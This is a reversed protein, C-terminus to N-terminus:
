ILENMKYDLHEMNHIKCKSPIDILSFTNVDEVTIISKNVKGQLVILDKKM